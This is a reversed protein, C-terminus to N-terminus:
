MQSLTIVATEASKDIQSEQDPDGCVAARCKLYAEKLKQMSVGLEPSTRLAVMDYAMWTLHAAPLCILLSHCRM